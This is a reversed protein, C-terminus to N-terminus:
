ASEKGPSSPPEQRRIEGDRITFCDGTLRVTWSDGEAPPLPFERSGLFVEEGEIRGWWELAGTQWIRTKLGFAMAKEEMM